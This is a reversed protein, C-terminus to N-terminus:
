RPKVDTSGKVMKRSYLGTLPDRYRGYGKQSDDPKDAPTAPTSPKPHKCLYVGSWLGLAYLFAGLLMNTM